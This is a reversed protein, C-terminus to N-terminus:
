FFDDSLLLKDRQSDNMENKHKQTEKMQKCQERTMAASTKWM